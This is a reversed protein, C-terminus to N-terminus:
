VATAVGALHDAARLSLASITLTPNAPASTPFAGGGLVMLNRVQHHVLHRDLVSSRPDGGMPTTGLIHSETRNPRPELLIQEIPLPALIRELDAGLADMGKRAYASHGRFVVQPRSPDAPNIRVQNETSRLDEYIVRMRLRQRWKGREARLEPRNVTEILAAARERRHPGGYLMYGHGTVYSSGQFNEVGDLHVVVTRSVQEGIGRGLEPHTMGSRLLIHANFLANAGLVVLEGQARHEAGEKLYSVGRATHGGEVEVEQVTAGLVLTVRPDEYLYALENQITFKSNIPCLTCVGNACCVPRRGTAATPRAAPLAFFRDPYAAKFLKDVDTFRHPAQLYPRSRPFPSDESPGAIAMIGEAECYYSELEEYTLPWDEGVGYLSRLRFDEPLMRPTNGVWCNSSGGFSVMFHWPKEPTDNGFTERSAHRIREHGGALQWPHPNVEGRELVLVRASRPSRQLYRHLFFSSAFGTGVVIVDYRERAADPHRTQFVMM